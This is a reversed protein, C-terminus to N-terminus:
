HSPSPTVHYHYWNCKLSRWTQLNFFFIQNLGSSNVVKLKPYHVKIYVMRERMLFFSEDINFVNPHWYFPTLPWYFPCILFQLAMYVECTGCRAFLSM